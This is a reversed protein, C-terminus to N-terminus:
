QRREFAQGATAERSLLQGLRKAGEEIRELPPASFSLRIRNHGTGDVYFASGAVFIVGHAIARELLSNDDEGDVLTAWIFFGGKPMQWALRDGLEKRLAQEMVDRKRRYTNRLGPAIRDIVGRRLAEHVMRQDLTGSALDVSQKATEFRDILAPPAVIWGVRFGPALTKSFSSLYIVRGGMDDARIPRTDRETALDDFYLACYPDDELIIVDRRAAWELLRTRKDLSLLCGTPNQFNPVLYLLKVTRGQARLRTCVEDLAELNIGDEDQRIGALEAQANKFAAIAGTYAPLEVLVVDGPTVLMRAVLDIGQQSGTTIQVQKPDIGRIHRRELVGVLAEILPMYGRTPGYQLAEQDGGSLLEQAIERLETWPFVAPDPYGAAFSIMDPAAAAVTGMRRIASEQLHRGAPSLFREYNM